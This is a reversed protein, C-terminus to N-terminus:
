SPFRCRIELGRGPGGAAEIAGGASVVVHKVIALGLGTGHSTRARDGRYFREFLRPLDTEPVGSGDDRVVLEAGEGSDRVSAECTAGEGAYRIANTLLNSVVTRLMRPRLPLELSEDGGVRLTIGAREAREALEEGLERLVPLACTRGLSVVERGTELESLFLVDDVLERMQEVEARAQGILTRLEEPRRELADLLMLLRALPTRLEHSVSATFGVRLEEYARQDDLPAVILTEGDHGYRIRRVNTLELEQPLEEGLRLAPFLDLARRSADELRGQSDLLLAVLEGHELLASSRDGEARTQQARRETQHMRAM